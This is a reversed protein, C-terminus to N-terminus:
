IHMQQRGVSVAGFPKSWRALAKKSSVTTIMRLPIGPRSGQKSLRMICLTKGRGVRFTCPGAQDAGNRIAAMDGTM